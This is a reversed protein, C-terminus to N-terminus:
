EGAKKQKSAAAPSPAEVAAAARKPAKPAGRKAIARPVLSTTTGVFRKHETAARVEPIRVNVAELRGNDQWEDFEVRTGVELGRRGRMQINTQHVFVDAAGDDRKIFGWGRDDHWRVVEGRM